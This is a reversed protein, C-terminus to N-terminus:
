AASAFLELVVYTCVCVCVYDECKLERYDRDQRCRVHSLLTEAEQWHWHLSTYSNKIFHLTKHFVTGPMRIM